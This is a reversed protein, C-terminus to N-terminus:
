VRAPCNPDEAAAGGDRAPDGSRQRQHGEGPWALIFVRERRHPAGVASAPLVEWEADLGLSALDGLVAGLARLPRETKCDGLCWPCPEMDSHASASLLGRVNELLVLRPRIIRIAEAVNSWVGSRTGPQLGRRAGACSIDQCPFGATLVDVPPVAAWDVATIDGLNPIGPFREALIASAGPTM